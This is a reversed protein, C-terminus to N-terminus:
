RILPELSMEMEQGDVTVMAVVSETGSMQGATIRFAITEVEGGTLRFDVIAAEPTSVLTGNLTRYDTNLDSVDFNEFVIEDREMGVNLGPMAQGLQAALSGVFAGGYAVMFAQEAQEETIRIEQIVTEVGADAPRDCGALVVVVSLLLAALAFWAHQKM